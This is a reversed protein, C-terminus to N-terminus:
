RSTGVRQPQGTEVAIRDLEATTVRLSGFAKVAQYYTWATSSCSAKAIGSYRACVRLMDSYFSSDIRSKNGSFAGLAKFNRYGFDHRQCPPRFDFGLPRDPSASCYDTSWDFGYAAWAGQDWRAADWASFSAASTQSWSTAVSLKQATTVALAPTSLGLAVLLAVATVLLTTLLRSLPRRSM